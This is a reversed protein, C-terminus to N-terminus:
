EMLQRDALIQQGLLKLQQDRLELTHRLEDVLGVGEALARDLEAAHSALREREAADAQSMRQFAAARAEHQRLRRAYEIRDAALVDAHLANAAELAHDIKEQNQSHITELKTNAAALNIRQAELAAMVEARQREGEARGVQFGLQYTLFLIVAAAGLKYLLPKM